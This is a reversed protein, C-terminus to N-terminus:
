RKRGKGNSVMQTTARRRGPRKPRKGNKGKKAAREAVDAARDLEPTEGAVHAEHVQKNVLRQQVISFLNFALYYLSLGSPFRNFFFFFVIPMMYMLVKQQAGAAGTSSGTSLKMSIVMSAAMLITFGSLFDGVFPISFPLSLVPDPASLDAAWLFSEGRLVLTNQFFTWMTILIPYQLLMPLCGGLPNVGAEKYVRMMAEQQKQPDEGYKEKVDALQPQLERMKAASRYSAATLPWLLLKVLLAFVIIVLGYSAIFTSLFAFAPAVIYRAIPRTMFGIFGFDVTDYLGYAALRRIELPGLYLTFADAGGEALRPMEVRATYDQAFSPGDVEGIQVGELQAGTARGEPILAAIFFKSKVAVWDVDGTRTMPEAEGEEDMKISETEGGSSLYAGTQQVDVTAETAPLAGNWVLEYGGSQSLINTGPTEVRFDVDYSDHHFGYALRLAGGGVPAEFTIEGEGEEVYLTDGTFPQGDVVPTFSLTRTDVYSGQPPVFELALAGADDSVLDVPEDTGARDYNRLKFSVPAGGLTSFTAEYRDTLVTVTREPSGVARGFLASDAPAPPPADLPALEAAQPQAERAAEAAAVSDAAAQQAEVEEPSPATTVMWVGLILSMLLIGLLATRDPGQPEM